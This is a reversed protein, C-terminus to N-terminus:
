VMEELIAVADAVFQPCKSRFLGQGSAQQYGDPTSIDCGLLDRCAINGHQEAFQEVFSQVLGYVRVKAALSRPDPGSHVLGLVIIAGTLVGCTGGTRGM